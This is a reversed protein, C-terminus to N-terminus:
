DLCVIADQVSMPPMDFSKKKVVRMDVAKAPDEFDGAGAGGADPTHICACSSRPTLHHRLRLYHCPMRRRVWEVWVRVICM